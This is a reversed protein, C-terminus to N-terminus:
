KAKGHPFGGKYSGSPVGSEAGELWAEIAERRYRRYRGLKVHPLRGARTEARIWGEPVALLEAVELATLLRGSGNPATV